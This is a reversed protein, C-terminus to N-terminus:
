SIWARIYHFANLLLFFSLIYKTINSKLEGYVCGIFLLANVFWAVLWFVPFFPSKRFWRLIVVDTLMGSYFFSCYIWFLPYFFVCLWVIVWSLFFVLLVGAESFLFCCVASRWRAILARQDCRCLPCTHHHVLWAAICDDHFVHACRLVRPHEECVEFCIVCRQM